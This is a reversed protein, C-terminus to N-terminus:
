EQTPVGPGTAIIAALLELRENQLNLRGLLSCVPDRELLLGTAARMPQSQTVLGDRFWDGHSIQLARTLHGGRHAPPICGCPNLLPTPTVEGFYFAPETTLLLPFPHPTPLLLLSGTVYVHCSGM